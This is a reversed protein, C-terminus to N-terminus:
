LGPVGLARLRCRLHGYTDTGSFHVSNLGARRAGRVNAAMDDVFVAEEPAIGLTRVIQDFYAPDPKAVGMRFSHFQHDFHEAYPLNALMYSGRYSQQNTALATTVGAARVRDVLGLMFEDLDIRSWVELIDDATCPRDDRELLTTLIARLDVEGTLTERERRFADKVFRPGGLRAMERLWGKRPYQTVGDADM